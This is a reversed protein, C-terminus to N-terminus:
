QKAITWEVDDVGDGNLDVWFTWPDSIGTIDQSWPIPPDLDMWEGETFAMESWEGELWGDACTYTGRFAGFDGIPAGEYEYLINSCSGDAGYSLTAYIWITEEGMPMPVMGAWDGVLMDCYPCPDDPIEGDVTVSGIMGPIVGIVTITFARISFDVTETAQIIEGEREGTHTVAIQHDGPVHIQVVHQLQGDDPVWDVTDIVDGDPGIIQIFLATVEYDEVTVGRNGDYIALVLRTQRFPGQIEYLCSGLSVVILVALVLLGVRRAMTKM